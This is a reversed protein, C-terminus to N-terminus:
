RGGPGRAPDRVGGVSRRPRRARPRHRGRARGRRRPRGVDHEAQGPDADRQRAQVRRAHGGVRGRRSGRARHLRRGRASRPGGRPGRLDPTRERAPARLRRGAQRDGLGRLGPDGLASTCQGRRCGRIGGVRDDGSGDRVLPLRDTGGRHGRPADPLDVERGPRRGDDPRRGGPARAGQRARVDGAEPPRRPQARQCARPGHAHARRPGPRHLRDNGRVGVRSRRRGRVRGGTRLAALRARERLCRAAALPPLPRRDHRHARGRRRLRGTEQEPQNRCRGHPRPDHCTGGAHRHSGAGRDARREAGLACAAQTGRGPDGPLLRAPRRARFRGHRGGHTASAPLGRPRDRAGSQLPRGRPRGRAPLSGRLGRVPTRPAWPGLRQDHAPADRRLDPQRGHAPRRGPLPARSADDHDGGPGGRGPRPHHAARRLSRRQRFGRGPGHRM